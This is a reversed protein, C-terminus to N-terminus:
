ETRLAKIPEISAARRAPLLGAVAACLGLVLTAGALAVPDYASVGYLQSAMLRGAVLAGVVGIVLGLGLQWGAGRLVIGMVSTRTAGLAMRIGIEGTRRVVFYSMVGYLGVSALALALVGFLSTLRALLRDQIFNGNVQRDFTKLDVVTLNPDISSLTRRLLEDINEQPSKFEILISDAFMSQTEGGDYPPAFRYQQTMPRLFV